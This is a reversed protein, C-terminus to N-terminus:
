HAFVGRLAQELEGMAITRQEIREGNSERLSKMTVSGAAVEDEAWILAVHAGSKDAKKIQSKLSGGGTHQMIRLKPNAGRIREVAALAMRYAEDGVAVVYVDIGPANTAIKEEQLLLVLREMGMAFGVAPTAKGGLQQVLGDYRGGACVTGQAGLKNTVWEFV